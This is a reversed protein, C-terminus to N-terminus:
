NEHLKSSTRDTYDPSHHFKMEFEWIYNTKFWFELMAKKTPYIWICTSGPDMQFNVLEASIQCKNPCSSPNQCDHRRNPACSVTNWHAYLVLDSTHTPEHHPRRSDTRVISRCMQNEDVLFACLFEVADLNGVCRQWMSSDDPAIKPAQNARDTSPVPSADNQAHPATTRHSHTQYPTASMSVPPFKMRCRVFHGNLQARIAEIWRGIPCDLSYIDDMSFVQDWNKRINQHVSPCEASLSANKRSLIFFLFLIIEAFFFVTATKQICSFFFVCM